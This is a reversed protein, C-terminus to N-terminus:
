RAVFVSREAMHPFANYISSVLESFSQRQVWRALREMYEVTEESLEDQLGRGALHGEVTLDYARVSFRDRITQLLGANELAELESYVDKDFPGYDYPEFRFRRAEYLKEDLLFFFKQVQVPTFAGLGTSLACLVDKQRSSLTDINPM